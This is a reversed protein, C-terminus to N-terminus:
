SAERLPASAEGIRTEIEALANFDPNADRVIQEDDVIALVDYKSRVIKGRPVRLADLTAKALPTPVDGLSPTSPFQM